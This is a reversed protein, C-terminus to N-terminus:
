TLDVLISFSSINKFSITSRAYLKKVMLVRPPLERSSIKLPPPSLLLAGIIRMNMPCEM